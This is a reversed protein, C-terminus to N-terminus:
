KKVINKKKKQFGSLYMATGLYEKFTRQSVGMKFSKLILFSNFDIEKNIRFEEELQERVWNIRSVREKEKKNKIM